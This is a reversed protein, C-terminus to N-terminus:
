ELYPTHTINHRGTFKSRADGAFNSRKHGAVDPGYNLATNSAQQKTGYRYGPMEMEMIDIEGCAPWEQKINGMM